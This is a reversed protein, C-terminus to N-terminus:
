QPKKAPPRRAPEPPAIVGKAPAEFPVGADFEPLEEKWPDKKSAPRPKEDPKALGAKRLADKLSDAM